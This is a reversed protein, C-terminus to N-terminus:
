SLFRSLLGAMGMMLPLVLFVGLRVFALDTATPTCPRRAIIFAVSPWHGLMAFFFLRALAGGDLLLLLFFEVLLQTAIAHELAASYAALSRRFLNGEPKAEPSSSNAVPRGEKVARLAV